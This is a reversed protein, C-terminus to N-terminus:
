GAPTRGLMAGRDRAAIVAKELAQMVGSDNLVGIAAETTGGRSTVDARLKSAEETVGAYLLAAGALTERVIRASTASDFGMSEGARVMAEALYFLYAPGSGALATYADMLAEEIDVVRGIGSFLAVAFKEDGDRAGASLSVATMGRGIRAPTNPMARVVRVGPGVAERVREGPTGALISIVVRGRCRGRLEAGVGALSQPKVALLVQGDAHQEDLWAIAERASAVGLAFASRRSPDPEAVVVRDADLVGAGIAGEVIAHAMNGGGIVAISPGQM